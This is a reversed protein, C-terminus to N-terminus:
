KIAIGSDCSVRTVCEKVDGTLHAIGLETEIEKLPIVWLRKEGFVVRSTVLRDMDGRHMSLDLDDNLERLLGITRKCKMLHSLPGLVVEEMETCLIVLVSEQAIEATCAVGGDEGPIFQLSKIRL